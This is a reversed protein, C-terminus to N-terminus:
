SSKPPETITWNDLQFEESKGVRVLAHLVAERGGREVSITFELLVMVNDKNKGAMVKRLGTMVLPEFRKDKSSRKWLNEEWDKFRESNVAMVGYLDALQIMFSDRWANEVAEMRVESVPFQGSSPGAASLLFVLVVSSPLLFSAM